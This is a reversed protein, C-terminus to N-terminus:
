GFLPKWIDKKFEFRYGRHTRSKRKVGAKKEAKSLPLSKGKKRKKNM